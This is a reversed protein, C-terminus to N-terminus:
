KRDLESTGSASERVVLECLATALIFAGCIVISFLLNFITLSGIEPYTNLLIDIVLFPTLAMIASGSAVGIFVRFKKQSPILAYSNLSIQTLSAVATAVLITWGMLETPGAGAHWRVHFVASGLAALVFSAALGFLLNRKRPPFSNM